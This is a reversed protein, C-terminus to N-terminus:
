EQPEISGTGGRLGYECLMVFLDYLLGDGPSLSTHLNQKKLFTVHLQRGEKWVGFVNSLYVSKKQRRQSRTIKGRMGAM